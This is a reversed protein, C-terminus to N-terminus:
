PYVRNLAEDTKDKDRGGAILGDKYAITTM